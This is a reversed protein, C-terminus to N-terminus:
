FIAKEPMYHDNQFETHGPETNGLSKLRGEGRQLWSFRVQILSSNKLIGWTKVAIQLSPSPPWRAIRFFLAWFLVLLKPFAPLATFSAPGMHLSITFHTNVHIYHQYLSYLSLSRSSQERIYNTKRGEPSKIKEVKKCMGNQTLISFPCMPPPKRYHRKIYAAAPGSRGGQRFAFCHFIPPCSAIYSVKRAGM